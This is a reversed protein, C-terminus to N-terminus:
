KGEGVGVADKQGMDTFTGGFTSKDTDEVGKPHKSLLDFSGGFGVDENKKKAPM